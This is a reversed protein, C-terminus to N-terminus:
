SPFCCAPFGASEMYSVTADYGTIKVWGSVFSTLALM